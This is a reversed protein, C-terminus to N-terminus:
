GSARSSSSPRGSTGAARCTSCTSGTTSSSARAPARPGDEAAGAIGTTGARATREAPSRSTSFLHRRDERLEDAARAGPEHLYEAYKRCTAAKAARGDFELTQRPMRTTAHRHPLRPPALRPALLLLRGAAGRRPVGRGDAQDPGQRLAHEHGQLRHVELGLPLLRRPAEHTIVFYKMGAESAQRAWERPDYLDPNFHDFYKQYEENTM